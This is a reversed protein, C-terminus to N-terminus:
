VHARGIEVIGLFLIMCTPFLDQPRIGLTYAFSSIGHSAGDPLTYLTNPVTPDIYIPSQPDAVQDAFGAPPDSPPDVLPNWLHDRAGNTLSVNFVLTSWATQTLLPYAFQPWQVAVM